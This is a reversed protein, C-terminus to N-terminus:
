RRRADLLTYRLVGQLFQRDAKPYDTSWSNRNRGFLYGPSDYQLRTWAFEFQSPPAELDPTDPEDDDPPVFFAGKQVAWAGAALSLGVRLGLVILVLWRHRHVM